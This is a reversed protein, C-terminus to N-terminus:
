ASLSREAAAIAAAIAEIGTRGTATLVIDWREAIPKPVRFSVLVMGDDIDDLDDDDGLEDLLDDLSAPAAWLKRLDDIDEISFGPVDPTTSLQDLLVQPDWAALEATRNDALAFARIQAADWDVPLRHALLETWGLRMAAEVTGNGAVVIGDHTVVIPKRQGFRALSQAIAELNRESHTRANNPDLELNSLKVSEVAM